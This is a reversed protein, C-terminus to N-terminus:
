KKKIAKIKKQISKLQGEVTTNAKGELDIIKNIVENITPNNSNLGINNLFGSIFKAYNICEMQKEFSKLIVKCKTIKDQLSVKKKLLVIINYKGVEWKACEFKGGNNFFSTLQDKKYRSTWIVHLPSLSSGNPTGITFLCSEVDSGVDSLGKVVSRKLYRARVFGYGDISKFPNLIFDTNESTRYRDLSEESEPEFSVIAYDNENMIAFLSDLIENEQYNGITHGLCLFVRRKNSKYNILPLSKLNTFDGICGSVSFDVNNSNSTLVQNFAMKILNSNIDIPYYISFCNSNRIIKSDKNGDGCGLSVYWFKEGRDRVDNLLSVTLDIEEEDCKALASEMSKIAKLYSITGDGFNYLYKNKLCSWEERLTENSLGTDKENSLKSYKSDDLKFFLCRNLDSLSSTDSKGFHITSLKAVSKLSEIENEDVVTQIKYSKMEM